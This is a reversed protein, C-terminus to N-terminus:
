CDCHITSGRLWSFIELIQGVAVLHLCLTVASMRVFNSAQASCESCRLWSTIRVSGSIDVARLRCTKCCMM